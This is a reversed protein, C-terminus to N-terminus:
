FFLKEGKESLVYVVNFFSMESDSAHESVFCVELTLKLAIGM